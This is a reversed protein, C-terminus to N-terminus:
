CIISSGSVYCNQIIDRVEDEDILGFGSITISDFGLISSIDHTHGDAHASVPSPKFWITGIFVWMTFILFGLIFKDKMRMGGKRTKDPLEKQPDFDYDDSFEM